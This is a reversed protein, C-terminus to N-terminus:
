NISHMHRVNFCWRDMCVHIPVTSFTFHLVCMASKYSSVNPIKATVTFQSCITSSHHMINPPVVFTDILNGLSIRCAYSIQKEWSMQYYEPMDNLLQHSPIPECCITVFTLQRRHRNLVLRFDWEASIHIM